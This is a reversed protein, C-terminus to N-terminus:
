EEDLGGSWLTIIRLLGSSLIRCVVTIDGSQGRGVIIYRTGRVDNTLRRVIKGHLIANEIDAIELDDDQMETRAHDTIEYNEARVKRRINRLTGM